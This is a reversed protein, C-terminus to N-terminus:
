PCTYWTGVPTYGEVCLTEQVTATVIHPAPPAASAVGVNFAAVALIAAVVYALVSRM